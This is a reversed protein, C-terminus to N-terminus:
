PMGLQGRYVWLLAKLGLEAINFPKGIFDNGGSLSSQARNQFTAMGTLFVVPTKEHLPFARIKTCLEFGNMGPLGVDLFILDFPTNSLTDLSAEATAAGTAPLNVLQLATMILQRANGDDEVVLVRSKEPGRTQTWRQDLILTGLFDIAQGVTRLTSPNVNEPLRVLQYILAEAAAAVEFLPKHGLLALQECFHHMEQLLDRLREASGSAAQLSHRLYAIRVSVQGTAQQHWEGNMGAVAGRLSNADEGLSSALAKILSSAPNAFRELVRTAGAQHAAHALLELETPLGIVPASRVNRDARIARVVASSEIGPLLLDMVVAEPPAEQLRKLATEGNEATAVHFGAAALAEGYFTTILPDSAILLIRKPKM